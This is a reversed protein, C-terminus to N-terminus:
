FLPLRERKIRWGCYAWRLILRALLIGGGSPIAQLIVGAATSPFPFSEGGLSSISLSSSTLPKKLRRLGLGFPELSDKRMPGSHTHSVCLLLQNAALGIKRKIGNRIEDLLDRDTDIIDISVIALRECKEDELALAKTFVDHYIGPPPPNRYSKVEGPDVGPTICIRNTGAKLM